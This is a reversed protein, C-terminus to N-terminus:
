INHNVTKFFLVEEWTWAELKLQRKLSKSICLIAALRIFIDPPPCDPDPYFPQICYFAFVLAVIAQGTPNIIILTVWLLLFAPIAGFADFIYSYEGGSKMITTGLEAYCLAGILSFVGSVTWVVMSMGVSGSYVLVSKPSVFIGSGIICGIIISVGNWLGIERRLGVYSDDALDKKPPLEDGKGNKKDPKFDLTPVESPSNNPSVNSVNAEPIHDNPDDEKTM